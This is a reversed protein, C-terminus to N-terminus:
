VKPDLKFKEGFGVTRVVLQRAESWANDPEDTFVRLMEGLHHKLIILAAKVAVDYPLCQTKCFSFTEAKGRRDFEVLHIEFSECGTGHAGNFVVTDDLLIPEGRGEIGALLVGAASVVLRIDKVAAAFPTAPLETPRLWSHTLGM